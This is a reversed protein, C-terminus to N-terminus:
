DKILRISYFNEKNSSERLLEDSSYEVKLSRSIANTDSLETATWWTSVVCLGSFGDEYKGSPIALFGSEGIEEMKETYNWLSEFGILKIGISKNNRDFSELQHESLGLLSELTQWDEDTPIRYGVPAIGRDDSVAYWNYLKGFKAGRSEDFNYYCWAGIKNRSANELEYSNKCQPILDGNKYSIVDLNRTMWTQNFIRIEKASVWTQITGWNFVIGMSLILLAGPLFAFFVVRKPFIIKSENSGKTNQLVVSEEGDLAIVKIGCKNCFNAGKQIEKGCEKCFM